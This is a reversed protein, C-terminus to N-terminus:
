SYSQIYTRRRCFYGNQIIVVFEDIRFIGSMMGFYPLQHCVVQLLNLMLKTVFLGNNAHRSGHSHGCGFLELSFKHLFHNSGRNIGLM